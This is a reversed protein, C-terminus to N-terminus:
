RERVLPIVPAARRGAAEDRLLRVVIDGAAAAAPSAADLEAITRGSELVSVLADDRPVAGGLDVRTDLFSEAAAQVIGHTAQGSLRSAGSVILEVPLSAFRSRAVKFLAYTAAVSIREASTVCLLREAGAMCAAMVTDLRSGGDVVVLGFHEYLGAVRRLLVRQEAAAVALTAQVGGGGGPFLALGPAVRVLLDEPAREGGRLSGLGPGPDTLGFMLHLSGVGEDADVLLVEEGRRSADLALLASVVSTGVGGKGSGLVLVGPVPQFTDGRGAGAM